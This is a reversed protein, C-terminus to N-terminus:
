LRYLATFLKGDDSFSVKECFSKIIGLGRGHSDNDLSAIMNNQYGSGSDTVQIKLYQIENEISFDFNFNIFARDLSKIKKDRAVYYESFKDSDSKNVSKLSLISHDLTNNYIEFILVHLVDKHHSVFPLSNLIEFLKSIPNPTAIDKESLSISINWELNNEINRIGLNTPVPHKMCNIELLTIDDKQSEDGTFIQLDDLLKQFREKGGNVLADKLRVEGFLKNEQNRAEIIGDSYMYVKDSDLINFTQTLTDFEDHELIGLPMHQSEITEKLEDNNNFIYIEPMGGSWVSLIGDYTNIRVINATLFMGHPMLKYLQYNIESAIEGVSSGRQVMDFFIMAVPLTGMAATLGHGTFDGVVAYISGDPGQESLFVDGNFVSLSSMHYKIVKDDLFSQKIASEFFYEILNQEYLLNRNVNKLLVNSENLELTLDRIRLHAHIKSALVEVNFPKSIFDDGGSELATSLSDDSSLATLFIVPVYDDGMIKKIETTAQYGDIGPMMVDMLILDPSEKKYVDIADQGDVAEVVDFGGLANLTQKLLIRNTSIDDAILIKKM